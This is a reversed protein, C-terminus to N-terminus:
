NLGSDYFLQSPLGDRANLLSASMFAGPVIYSLVQYFHTALKM